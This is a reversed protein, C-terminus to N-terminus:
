TLLNILPHTHSLSLSHSLSLIESGCTEINKKLIIEFMFFGRSAMNEHTSNEKLVIAGSTSTLTSLNAAYWM